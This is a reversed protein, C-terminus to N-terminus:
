LTHNKPGETTVHSMSMLVSGLQQLAVSVSMARPVVESEFTMM